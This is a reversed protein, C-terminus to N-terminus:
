AVAPPILLEGLIGQGLDLRDIQCFVILPSADAVVPPARM